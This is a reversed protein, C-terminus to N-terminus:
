KQELSEMTKIMYDTINKGAQGIHMWAQAKAKARADALEKSDSMSQIVEKINAFDKEDLQKGFKELSEYQWLKKDGLDYADYPKLDM